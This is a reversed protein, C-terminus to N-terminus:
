SLVYGYEISPPSISTNLLSTIAIPIESLVSGSAILRKALFIKLALPFLNFSFSGASSILINISRLAINLLETKNLLSSEITNSITNITQIRNNRYYPKIIVNTNGSNNSDKIIEKRNLYIQELQYCIEKYEDSKAKAPDECEQIIYIDADEKIIETFKERFNGYVNWSVFKM